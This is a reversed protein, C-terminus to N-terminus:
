ECDILDEQDLVYHMGQPGRIVYRVDENELYAPGALLFGDCLLDRVRSSVDEPVANYPDAAAVMGDAHIFLEHNDVVLVVDHLIQDRTM